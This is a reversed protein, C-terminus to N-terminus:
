FCFWTVWYYPDHLIGEKCYCVKGNNFLIDAMDVGDIIVDPLPAGALNAFTPLLDLASALEDTVGAPIHGPWYAIAPVRQGGEYTTGKGCKLLGPSGMGDYPRMM